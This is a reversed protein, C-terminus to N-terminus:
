RGEVIKKEELCRNYYRQIIYSWYPPKAKRKPPTNACKDQIVLYPECAPWESVGDSSLAIRRTGSRGHTIVGWQAGHGRRLTEGMYGGAADCFSMSPQGPERMPRPTGSRSTWGMDALGPLEGPPRASRADIRRVFQEPADFGDKADIDNLAQELKEVSADSYDLKVGYLERMTRVFVDAHYRARATVTADPMFPGPLDPPTARAPLCVTLTVVALSFGRLFVRLITKTM